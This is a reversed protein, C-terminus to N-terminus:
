RGIEVDAPGAVDSCAIWTAVLGLVLALTIWWRRRAPKAFVAMRAREAELQALHHRPVAVADRVQPDPSDLTTAILAKLDAIEAELNTLDTLARPTM